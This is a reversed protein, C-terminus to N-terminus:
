LWREAEAHADFIGFPVVTVPSDTATPESAPEDAERAPQRSPPQHTAAAVRTRAVIKKERRAQPGRTPGDSARTLIEDLVRAVETENRDNGGRAATEQRALEWTFDAFPGTVMARHTWPVILWGGKTRVFVQSLDYPDYHVEWAGKWRTNGSHERHFPWLEECDYTRYDIQIGYDNIVRRKLPLLELYDEATLVLPLYGCAAVLSAYKENPTMM